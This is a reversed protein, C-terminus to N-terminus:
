KVADWDDIYSFGGFARGYLFRKEQEEEAAAKMVDKFIDRFPECKINDHTMSISLGYSTSLIPCLGLASIKNMDVVCESRWEKKSIHIIDKFGLYPKRMIDFTSGGGTYIIPRAKLVDALQSMSYRSQKRFEQALSNNLNLCVSEIEKEYTCRRDKLIESASEVNSSTRKRNYNMADTLYNLGKDISFLGFVQPQNEKNITFFSIDTTGGGIDIMLSMGSAIKNQKILPMLCAYAEPFVLINYEEKRDESYPIFVTKEKLQQIPTRLFADKDNKFVEEVLRYASLLIRVVLQKQSNLREGDTPVGMQIAFDQGYKAELNFLIYSIYWISYYVADMKSMNNSTSTFTAQKFYRVIKGDFGSQKSVLSKISQLLGSTNSVEDSLYGYRVLGKKDVGLVSPLTYQEVGKADKFKFFEYQLEAGERNEVCVKTQHTGFDFGVTRM